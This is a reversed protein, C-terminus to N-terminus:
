RQLEYDVTGDSAIRIPRDEAFRGRALEVSIPAADPRLVWLRRRVGDRPIVELSGDEFERVQGGYAILGFIPDDVVVTAAARLAAGFGLDIEGDYIWPGRGNEHLIWQHSFKRSGFGWGAAGDNARGAYWFGGDGDASTNMLAWSSLISAYGLRLLEAQRGFDARRGDQRMWDAHEGEGAFRLAYDLISWGGMQSMYSLSYREQRGQRYDSGMAYYAPELWGRLAINADQQRELFERVDDRSVDPHSYWRDFNKDYWTPETPELEHYLLAFRALAYSSEFGTSDFAYESRFAYPDDYVFYKIKRDIHKRLLAADAYQLGFRRPGM